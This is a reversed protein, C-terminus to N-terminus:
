YQFLLDYILLFVCHIITKTDHNKDGVITHPCHLDLESQVARLHDPGSPVNKCQQSIRM